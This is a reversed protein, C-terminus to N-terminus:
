QLSQYFPKSQRSVTQDIPDEIASPKQLKKDLQWCFRQAKRNTPVSLRHNLTSPSTVPADTTPPSTPPALLIPICIQYCHRGWEADFRTPPNAPEFEPVITEQPAVPITVPVKLFVPPRTPFLRPVNSRHKAQPDTDTESFLELSAPPSTPELM